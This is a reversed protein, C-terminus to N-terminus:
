VTYSLTFDLGNTAAVTTTSYGQTGFAGVGGIVNLASNSFTGTAANELVTFPLGTFMQTGATTAISTSSTLIGSVLVTRGIKTYRGTSSFTGVVTLGSGQAPTWTGEEYDNLLESTVGPAAPNASFDIGKGATGIVLNGTSLTVNGAFTIPTAIQSASIVSNAVKLM